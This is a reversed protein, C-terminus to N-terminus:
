RRFLLQQLQRKNERAIESPSLPQTANITVNQVVGRDRKNNINEILKDFNNDLKDWLVNLPLVAEANHGYGHNLDGVGIGGLMTPNAFIGGDSYWDVKLHPVSPPNLSFKGDLSFHPLPPMEIKPFKLKLGSFFGKIKDLAGKIADKAANVPTTMLTKVSNWASSTVSKITEWVSSVTSLIGNVVTSIASKIGEWVSTAVSKIANFANTTSTKISNWVTDIVSKIANLVTTIVGKIANWATTIVTKIANVYTQVVGKIAGWVVDFVSKIGNWITTTVSKIVEWATTIITKVVGVYGQILGKIAEWVTSIVSKIAEWVTSTTSKIANWGASVANGIASLASKIYDGIYNWITTIISKIIELPTRIITILLTFYAEVASKILELAFNFINVIGDWISSITESISTFISSVSESLGGWKDSIWVAVGDVANGVSEKVGTWTESTSTAISDWLNGIWEKIEGWNKYILFATAAFAAVAATVLGVPSLLFTFVAGLGKILTSTMSLVKGVGSFKMLANIVGMIGVQHIAFSGFVTAFVIGLTQVLTKNESIWHALAQLKDVVSGVVVPIKRLTDALLNVADVLFGSQMKGLQIQLNEWASTVGALAGGLGGDMTDAMEKTKGTSNEISKTMNNFEEDSSNIIALMGSMAQQGFITSAYQAKQADSLTSFKGRIDQLLTSFPKVKGSSDTISLGMKSILKAANGTPNALSTLASRLTTGAQSGVIGKNAMLGLAVSVDQVKYGLGGAISGVYKFSEGLLGIDTNASSATTSLIDTFKGTEEAKMGFQSLGNAVISSAQGLDISNATAFTLTEGIGAMVENTSWGARALNEMGEGAQTASFRTKAGLDEAKAQLQKFQEGTAGSVASVKRMQDDYTSYTGVISKEFGAIATTAFAGKVASGIKSSIGAFGQATQRGKKDISDLPKSAEDKLFVSGFLKFIEM